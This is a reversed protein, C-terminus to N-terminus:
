IMNVSRLEMLLPHAITPRLTWHRHLERSPVLLGKAWLVELDGEISERSASLAVVLEASTLSGHQALLALLLRQELSLPGLLEVGQAPLAAMQVAGEHQPHPRACALWTYMAHRPNGGSLGALREHFVEGPARARLGLWPQGLRDILHLGPDDYELDFGSLRHRALLLAHLDEGPMPEVHVITPIRNRLGLRQLALDAAPTAMLLIWLTTSATEGVLALFEIMRAVGAPSPALLREANEVVIVRRRELADPELALEAFGLAEGEIGFARGLQKAVGVEDRLAPGLRIWRVDLLAQSRVRALVHNVLTRKGSGRDGHLLMIQPVKARWAEIARMCTDELAPRRVYLDAIEIPLTAFLRRYGLPLASGLESPDGGFIAQLRAQQPVSAQEGFLVRLEDALERLAPRASQYSTVVRVGARRLWGPRRQAEARRRHEDLGRVILEPRHARYPASADELASASRDIFEGLARRAWALRRRQLDDILNQVRALGTRAFEEAQAYELDAQHRQVALTYYDLVRELEALRATLEHLADILTRELQALAAIVAEVFDLELWGRLPVALPRAEGHLEVQEPLEAVTRRLTAGLEVIPHDRDIRALSAALSDRFRHLEPHASEDLWRGWEITGEDRPDLEVGAPEGVLDLLSDVLAAIRQQFGAFDAIFGALESPLRM